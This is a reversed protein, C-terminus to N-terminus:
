SEGEGLALKVKAGAAELVIVGNRLSVNPRLGAPIKPLNILGEIRMADNRFAPPVQSIGILSMVLRGDGIRPLYRAPKTMDKEDPNSNETVEVGPKLFRVEIGSSKVHVDAVLPVVRRVFDELDQEELELIGVPETATVRTRTAFSSRALAFLESADFAVSVMRTEVSQVRLGGSATAGQVRVTVGTLSGGMFRPLFPFGGLDVTAEEAAM